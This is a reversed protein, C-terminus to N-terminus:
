QGQSSITELQRSSTIDEEKMFCDINKMSLESNREPSYVIDIYYIYIYFTIPNYLNHYKSHYLSVNQHKWKKWIKLFSRSITKFITQNIKSNKFKIVKFKSIIKKSGKGKELNIHNKPLPDMHSNFQHMKMLAKHFTIIRKVM